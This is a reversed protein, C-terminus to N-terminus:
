KVKGPLRRNLHSFMLLGALPLSVALDAWLSFYISDAQSSIFRIRARLSDFMLGGAIPM